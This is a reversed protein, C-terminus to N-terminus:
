GSNISPYAVVNQTIKSQQAVPETEMMIMGKNYGM